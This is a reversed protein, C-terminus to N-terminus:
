ADCSEVLAREIRLRAEEDVWWGCPISVTREDFHKTAALTGVARSERFCTYEDNRVHLRQAIVGRKMLRDVLADRNEALLSCTWYASAQRPPVRMGPLAKLAEDLLRGNRLFLGRADQAERWNLVGVAANLNSISFSWGPEEVDSRPNIDGNPLRFTRGNIGYRRLRIARDVLEPDRISVAGGELANLQKTSRFSFCTFDATKAGVVRDGRVAGFADSADEVTALGYQKAAREIRLGDAVDGSWHYYLVAKTRSTVARGIADPDLMGSAPDVDVWVARAGLNLIPISSALCLMPPAIVEDGPRVGSLHLSLTIAASIDAVALVAQNALWERLVNEFEGVATGDSV